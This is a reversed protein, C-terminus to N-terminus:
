LVPVTNAKRAAWMRLMGASAAEAVRKRGEPTRPGTSFGGHLRCRGNVAESVRQCPTGKSKTRAECLRQWGRGEVYVKPKQPRLEGHRATYRGMGSLTVRATNDFIETTGLLGRKELSRITNWSVPRGEINWGRKYPPGGRLHAGSDLRKLLDMQM